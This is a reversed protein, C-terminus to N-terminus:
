LMCSWILGDVLWTGHRQVLTATLTGNVDVDTGELSGTFLGTAVIYSRDEEVRVDPRGLRLSANLRNRAVALRRFWLEAEQHGTRHFPPVDDIIVVNDTMGTLGATNEGSNMADIVGRLVRLPGEKESM